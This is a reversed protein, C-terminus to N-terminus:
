KGKGLVATMASRVADCFERMEDNRKDVNTMALITGMSSALVDVVASMRNYREQDSDVNLAKQMAAVVDRHLELHMREASGCAHNIAGEAIVQELTSLYTLWNRTKDDIM